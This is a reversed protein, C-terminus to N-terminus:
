GFYFKVYYKLSFHARVYCHFKDWRLKAWGQMKFLIIKLIDNHQCLFGYSYM